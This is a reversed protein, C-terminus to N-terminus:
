AHSSTLAINLPPVLFRMSEVLGVPTLALPAEPVLLPLLGTDEVVEDELEVELDDPPEELDFAAFNAASFLEEM